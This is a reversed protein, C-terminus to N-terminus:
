LVGLIWLVGAVIIVIDRLIALFLSITMPGGYRKHPYV